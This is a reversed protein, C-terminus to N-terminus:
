GYITVHCQSVRIDSLGREWPVVHFLFSTLFHMCLSEAIMFAARPTYTDCYLIRSRCALLGDHTLSKVVILSFASRGTASSHALMEHQLQTQPLNTNLKSCLIITKRCLLKLLPQLLFHSTRGHYINIPRQM